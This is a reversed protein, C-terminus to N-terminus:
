AVQHFHEFDFNGNGADDNTYLDNSSLAINYKASLYNNVIITQTTNLAFNYIIFENMFGRLGGNTTTAHRGIRPNPPTTAGDADALTNQLSGNYRIQYNVNYDRRMQIIKASTNINTTSSPGGLGGGSNNRKQYAYVNGTIPKLSVLNNTASTRDLIFQGNGDNIGGVISATDQFTVFYTYGETGSMGLGPGDIFLNGTFSLAPMGNSVNTRYIPRNVATNQFANNGNGSRDNWIRVTQGSTAPTIGSDSFATGDGSLWMVNSSSNGVGGAGTQSYINTVFLFNLALLLTSYPKM